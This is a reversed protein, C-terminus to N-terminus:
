RCIKKIEFPHYFVYDPEYSLIEWHDAVGWLAAGLCTGARKGAEMDYKSNGILIAQPPACGFTKLAELVAAPNPKPEAVDDSCIWANVFEDLGFYDRLGDLEIKAQATVVGISIGAARIYALVEFVGPYLRSFHRMENEVAACELLLEEVRDPDIHALIERTPMGRFKQLQEETAQAGRYKMYLRKLTLGAMEKSDILTGDLDFLIAHFNSSASFGGPMIV